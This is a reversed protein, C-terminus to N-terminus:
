QGSSIDKGEPLRMLAEFIQSSFEAYQQFNNMKGRRGM